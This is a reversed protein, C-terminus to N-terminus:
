GSVAMSGSIIETIEQTIGAQRARNYSITLEDKLSQANDSANKMAVMRSSHESAKAEFLSQFLQAAVLGSVMSDFIISASPEFTYETQVKNNTTTEVLEVVPQSDTGSSTSPATSFDFSFPLLQVVEPSYSMAKKYLTTAISVKSVKQQEFSDLVLKKVPNLADVDLTEPLGVFSATIPIQLKNAIKEAYKGITIAQLETASSTSAKYERVVKGLQVHYGGCLGKDSAIIVLLEKEPLGRQSVGHAMEGKLSSFGKVFPHNKLSESGGLKVLLQKAEKAYEKSRMARDVAKKMKSVSVMEMTKTIKAINGVSKMKQKIAKTQM